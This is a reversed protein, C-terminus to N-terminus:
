TTGKERNMGTFLMIVKRADQKVRLTSRLENALHTFLLIGKGHEM